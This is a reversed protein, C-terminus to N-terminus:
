VRTPLCWAWSPVREHQDDKVPASIGPGYPCHIVWTALPSVPWFKLILPPGIHLNEWSKYMHKTAKSVMQPKLHSLFCHPFQYLIHKQPWKNKTTFYPTPGSQNTFKLVKTIHTLSGQTDIWILKQPDRTDAVYMYFLKSNKITSKTQPMQYGQSWECRRIQIDRCYPNCM